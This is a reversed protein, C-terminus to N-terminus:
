LAMCEKYADEKNKRAENWTSLSANYQGPKGAVAQGNLKVYDWYAKDAGIQCGLVKSKRDSEAKEEDSAKQLKEKRADEYKLRELDFTMKHIAPLAFVFYYSISCTLIVACFLVGNRLTNDKRPSEVVVPPIPHSPLEDPM